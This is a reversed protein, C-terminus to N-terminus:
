GPRDVPTGLDGIDTPKRASSDTARDGQLRDRINIRASAIHRRMLMEALDGDRAEIAEVIRRHEILAKRPRDAVASFQYRSMRIRHYLEGILTGILTENHSGQIIRYHFDLDGERQFYARNEQIDRQCEHEQLLAYAGDIEHDHMQSAAVRAAMGELAERAVYMDILSRGDLSAIRIGVHAEREILHRSELARIVERMPGRSVGYRTALETESIRSGPPIVGRVIDEQLDAYARDALTRPQAGTEVAEAMMSDVICVPM